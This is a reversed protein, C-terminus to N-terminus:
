TKMIHILLQLMPANPPRSLPFSTELHVQARASIVGPHANQSPVSSVVLLNFFPLFSLKLMFFFISFTVDSSGKFGMRGGVNGYYKSVIKAVGM